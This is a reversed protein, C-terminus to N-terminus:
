FKAYIERQSKHKLEIIVKQRKKKLTAKTIFFCKFVCRNPLCPTPVGFSLYNEDM